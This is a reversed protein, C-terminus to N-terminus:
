AIDRDYIAQTRPPLGYLSAVVSNKSLKVNSLDVRTEYTPSSPLQYFSGSLTRKKRFESRTLGPTSNSRKQVGIGGLHNGSNTRANICRTIDVEKTM